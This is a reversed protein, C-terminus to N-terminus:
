LESKRAHGHRRPRPPTRYLRLWEAANERRMRGGRLLIEVMEMALIHHVQKLHRPADRLVRLHGELTIRDGRVLPGTLSDAVGLRLANDISALALRLLARRSRGRAVGARKELLASAMSLLTLLYGSALCASLHYAPKSGRPIKLVHGKMEGVLRSALACARPNGELGFTVGRFTGMAGAAKPLSTLPHFSAVLAGAEELSRLVSSPLAGSTHFAFRGRWSLRDAWQRAVAEIRADPVALILVDFNRGPERPSAPSPVRLLKRAYASRSSTRGEVGVCRHGARILASTLSLGVPGPGVLFFGLKR